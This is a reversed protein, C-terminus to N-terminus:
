GDGRASWRLSGGGDPRKCLIALTVHSTAATRSHVAVTAIRSLGVITGPAYGADVRAGRPPLLDAVALGTPCVLRVAGDRAAVSRRM